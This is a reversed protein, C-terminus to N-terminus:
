IGAEVVVELLDVEFDPLLILFPQFSFNLLVYLKMVSGFRGFLGNLDRVIYIKLTVRMTSELFVIGM